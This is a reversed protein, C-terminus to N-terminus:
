NRKRKVVPLLIEAAAKGKWNRFQQPDPSHDTEAAASAPPPPATSLINTLTSIQFSKLHSSLKSFCNSAVQPHSPLTAVLVLGKEIAARYGVNRINYLRRSRETQYCLLIGLSLRARSVPELLGCGIYVVRDAEAGMMEGATRVKWGWEEETEERVLKAINDSLYRNSDIIVTVDETGMFGRMLKLGQIIKEAAEEEVGLDGLSVLRPLEGVVETGPNGPPANRKRATALCSHLNTISKTSRYTTELVLRLCSTPLLLRHDIYTGPNFM